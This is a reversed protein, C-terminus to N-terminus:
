SNRLVKRHNDNQHKPCMEVSLQFLKPRSWATWPDVTTGTNSGVSFRRAQMGAIVMAAMGMRQAFIQQNTLNNIQTNTSRNIQTNIKKNTSYTKLRSAMCEYLVM